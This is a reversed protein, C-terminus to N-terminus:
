NVTDETWRHIAEFENRIFHDLFADVLVHSSTVQLEVDFGEHVRIRVEFPTGM